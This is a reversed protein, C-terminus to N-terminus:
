DRSAAAHISPSPSVNDPLQSVLKGLDRIAQANVKKFKLELEKVAAIFAENATSADAADSTLVRQATEYLAAELFTYGKHMELLAPPDILFKWEAPSDLRSELADRKLLNLERVLKRAWDKIESEDRLMLKEHSFQSEEEFFLFRFRCCLALAKLLLTSNSDGFDHRRTVELFYLHFQRRNDFFLIGRSLMLRYLQEGNNSMIIQSNDVDSGELSSFVVAEIADQWAKAYKPNATQLFEKWFTERERLGFIRMTGIGEPSLKANDPLGGDESGLGQSVEIVLKKQPAIEDDVSKKLESFISTLFKRTSELRREECFKADAELGAVKRLENVDRELGKLFGAIVHNRDIRLLIKAYEEQSLKLTEKDIEFHVGLLGATAQPPSQRYFPIIRRQVGPETIKPLGGFFGLEIGTFGHTPKLQGTYVAILIDTRRLQQQIQDNLEVGHRFSETDILVEVFDEGLHSSLLSHLAIALQNDESAYSIFIILRRIM